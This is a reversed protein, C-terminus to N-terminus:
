TRSATSSTSTPRASATIPLRAPRPSRIASARSRSGPPSRPPLRPRCRSRCAMPGSGSRGRPAPSTPPRSSPARRPGARAWSSAPASTPSKARSWGRTASRRIWRLTTGRRAAAKSACRAATSSTRPIRADPRGAGSQPLRTRRIERGPQDRLAGFAPEVASGPHQQRDLSVIGMGTVVVRTM